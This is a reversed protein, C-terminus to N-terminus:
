VNSLWSSVLSKLKAVALPLLDLEFVLVLPGFFRASMDNGQFCYSMLGFACQSSLKVCSVSCLEAVVLEM